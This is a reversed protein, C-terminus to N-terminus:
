AGEFELQRELAKLRESTEVHELLASAFDRIEEAHESVANVSDAYDAVWFNGRQDAHYQIAEEAHEAMAVAHPTIREFARQQWPAVMSQITELRRLKEGMTNIQDRIENLHLAHSASSLQNRQSHLRLSGANNALQASLSRVEAILGSAEEAYAWNYTATNLTQVEEKKSASALLPLALFLTGFTGWGIKRLTLRMSKDEM